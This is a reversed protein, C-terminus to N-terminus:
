AICIVCDYILCVLGLNPRRRRGRAQFRLPVIRTSLSRISLLPFYTFHILFPFLSFTIFLLLHPLSHVLSCCLRFPPVGAGRPTATNGHHLRCSTMVQTFGGAPRGHLTVSSSLRWRGNSTQGEVIHTPSGTILCMTTVTKHSIVSWYGIINRFSANSVVWAYCYGTVSYKGSPVDDDDSFEATDTVSAVSDQSHSFSENSSERISDASLGSEERVPIHMWWVNVRRILTHILLAVPETFVARFVPVCRCCVCVFRGFLTQLVFCCAQGSSKNVADVNLSSTRM